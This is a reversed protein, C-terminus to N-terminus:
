GVNKRKKMLLLNMGIDVVKDLVKLLEMEMGCDLCKM